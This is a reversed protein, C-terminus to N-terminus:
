MLTSFRRQNWSNAGVDLVVLGSASRSSRQDFAVDFYITVRTRRDVHKHSRDIKLTPNKEEIDDWESIYSYIQKSIDRGMM